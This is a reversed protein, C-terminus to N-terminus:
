NWDLELLEAVIEAAACVAPACIKITLEERAVQLRGETTRKDCGLVETCSLGGFRERFCEEFEAKLGLFRARTEADGNEGVGCALGLAMLAGCVAGCPGGMGMGGGFAAGLKYATDKDLGLQPGLEGLVQMCCNVGQSFGIPVQQEDIM